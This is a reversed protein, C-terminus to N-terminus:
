KIINSVPMILFGSNKIYSIIDPLIKLTENSSEHLLIISGNKMNQIISKYIKESTINERFDKPDVSWLVVNLKEERASLLVDNHVRGFPPRLLTPTIGTVSNIASQTMRIEQLIKRRDLNKFESHYYSHNGMDHGDTAIQQAIQPYRNVKEGILFFTSKINNKRLIELIKPTSAPDPGDDFTLYIIKKSTDGHIIIIKEPTVTWLYVVVCLCAICFSILPLYFVHQISNKM